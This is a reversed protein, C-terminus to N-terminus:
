PTKTKNMDEKLKKFIFRQQIVQFLTSTIWYLSLGSPFTIGIFITILPFFYIMQTNMASQFSQGIGAQDGKKVDKQIGQKSPKAPQLMRTQVFQLGGAILALIATPWYIETLSLNSTSIAERSIDLFGLSTHDITGPNNVFSYLGEVAGDTLGHRFATYLAILLLFQVILPLCSSLPNIKNKQYFEMLAKSQEQKNTKYKDQIKKIEPQLEQMRKQAILQKKTLPLLVTKVIITMIIIAIGFDQGPIINYLGVLANFIPLYLVTDWITGIFGLM